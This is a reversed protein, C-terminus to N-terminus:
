IEMFDSLLNKIQMTDEYGLEVLRSTYSSDFALYSMLNWGTEGTAGMGRLLHQITYPFNRAAKRVLSELDVTPKILFTPLPKYKLGPYDSKSALLATVNRSHAHEIDEELSDLFIANFIIGSLEAFYPYHVFYPTKLDNQKKVTREHRVGIALIKQAGMNIAPSLPAHMRVCGDGYYADNIKIAPFFFPIASSAMLHDVSLSTRIAIKLNRVWPKIATKGDFFIVSTGTYYNTTSVAFGHLRGGSIHDILQTMDLHQTLLARLPTTDLISRGKVKGLLGGFSFDKM